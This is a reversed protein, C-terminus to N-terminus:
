PPPKQWHRPKQRLQECCKEHNDLRVALRTHTSQRWSASPDSSLTSKPLIRHCCGSRICTLMLNCVLVNDISGNKTIFIKQFALHAFDLLKLGMFGGSERGVSKWIQWSSWQCGRSPPCCCCCVPPQDPPWRCWRRRLLHPPLSQASATSPIQPARSFVWSGVCCRPQFFPSNNIHDFVVFAM